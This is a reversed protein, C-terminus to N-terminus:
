YLWWLAYVGMSIYASIGTACETYKRMSCCEMGFEIILLKLTWIQLSGSAHRVINTATRGDNIPDFQAEIVLRYCLADRFKLNQFLALYLVGDRAPFYRCNIRCFRSICQRGKGALIKTYYEKMLLLQVCIEFLSKTQCMKSYVSLLPHLRREIALGPSALLWIVYSRPLPQKHPLVNWVLSRAFNGKSDFDAQFLGCPHGYLHSQSRALHVQVITPPTGVRRKCVQSLTRLLFRSMRCVSTNTSLPMVIINQHQLRHVLVDPLKEVSLAQRVSISGDRKVLKLLGKKGTM